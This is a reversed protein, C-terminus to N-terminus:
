VCRSTYLLCDTYDAIAHDYDRETGYTIGRNYYEAALGHDHLRGSSIARTCAAIADDGVATACTDADDAAARSASVPGAAFCLTILGVLPTSIRM